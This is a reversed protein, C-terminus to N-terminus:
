GLISNISDYNPNDKINEKLCQLYLITCLSKFFVQRLSATDESQHAVSREFNLIGLAMGWM